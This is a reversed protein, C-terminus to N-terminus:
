WIDPMDDCETFDNAREEEERDKKEWYRRKIRALIKERNDWYYERQQKRVSKKNESYYTKAELVRCDPCKM